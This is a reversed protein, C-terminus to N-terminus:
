IITKEGKAATSILTNLQVQGKYNGGIQSVICYVNHQLISLTPIINGVAEQFADLPTVYKLYSAGRPMSPEGQAQLFFSRPKNHACKGETLPYHTRLM